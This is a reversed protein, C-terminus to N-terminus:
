KVAEPSQEYQKPTVRYGFLCHAREVFVFKARHLVVIQADVDRGKRATMFPTTSKISTVNIHELYIQCDEFSPINDLWVKLSEMSKGIHVEFAHKPIEENMVHGLEQTVRSDLHDFTAANLKVTSESMHSVGDLEGATHAAPVTKAGETCIEVYM